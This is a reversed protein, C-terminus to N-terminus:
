STGSVVLVAISAVVTIAGLVDGNVGNIKRIALAAVAASSVAAAALTLPWFVPSAIVAVAVGFGVGLAVSPTSLRAIYSAGMGTGATPAVLMAVLASARGLSHAVLLAAMGDTPTLQSVAAVDTILAIALASVGYTGLRSDKLIVLREEVTWGGGFADAIDALGDHHFAGTLLLSSGLALIAAVLPAVFESAVLYVGGHIAGIGLGVVPFWPVARAMDVQVTNGRSVDGVPVRTLFGAAVWLGHFPGPRRSEVM